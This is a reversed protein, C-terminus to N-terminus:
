LNVKEYGRKMFYAITYGIAVSLLCSILVKVNFFLSGSIVIRYLYILVVWFMATAAVGHLYFGRVQFYVWVYLSIIFASLGPTKANLFDLLVGGFIASLYASQYGANLMFGL